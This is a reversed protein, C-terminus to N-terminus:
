KIDEEELLIKTGQSKQEDMQIWQTCHIWSVKLKNKMVLILITLFLNYIFICIILLKNTTSTLSVKNVVDSKSLIFHSEIM